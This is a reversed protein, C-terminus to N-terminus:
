NTLLARNRQAIVDPLPQGHMIFSRLKECEDLFDAIPIDRFSWCSFMQVSSSMASVIASELLDTAYEQEGAVSAALSLCQYFNAEYNDGDIGLRLGLKLAHLFEGRDPSGEVAWNAIARNFAFAVQHFDEEPDTADILDRALLPEDGGILRLSVNLRDEISISDAGRNRIIWSLARASYRITERSFNLAIFSKILDSSPLNGLCPIEEPSPLRASDISAINALGERLSYSNLDNMMLLKIASDSSIEDQDLDKYVRMRLSYVASLFGESGVVTVNTMGSAAVAHDIAKAAETLFKTNYYYAAVFFMIIFDNSHRTSIKSVRGELNESVLAGGDIRSANQAERNVLGELFAFAGDPDENNLKSIELSLRRMEKAFSTKPRDLVFIKQNLLALSDYHHIKSLSGKDYQLEEQFRDLWGNLIDYEDDLRPIRSAVFRLTIPESASPENRVDAVIQKLGALNQENPFFVMAVADPLQRTCIGSIDTHGTRSDILVYDFDLDEWQGKLDEFLLLGNERDYLSRWDLQSFIRPYQPDSVNGAPMISLSGTSPGDAEDSIAIECPHIYESAVPIVRAERYDNIFEVLGKRGRASACVDFTTLGPAELDFDVVLVKQGRKALTAAVNMLALSRGVGGKFSYFTCVFM